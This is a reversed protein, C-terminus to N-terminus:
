APHTPALYPVRSVFSFVIVAGCLSSRVAITMPCGRWATSRPKGPWAEVKEAQDEGYEVVIEEQV